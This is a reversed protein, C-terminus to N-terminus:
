RCSGHEALNLLGEIRANILERQGDICKAYITLLVEM